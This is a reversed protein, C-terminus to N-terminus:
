RIRWDELVQDTEPPDPHAFRYCGHGSFGSSLITEGAQAGAAALPIKTCGDQVAVTHSTSRARFRAADHVPNLVRIGFIIL